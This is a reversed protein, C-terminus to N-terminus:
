YIEKITVKKGGWEFTDGAKLGDMAQGIPAAPTIAFYDTGDVSLKGASISIYYNGMTTIVLAGRTVDKHELKPNTNIVIEELKRAETLQVSLNEVEYQMMARGTEYKDGSSSKTEENASEQASVIAEEANKIRNKVFTLCAEHLAKKISEKAM